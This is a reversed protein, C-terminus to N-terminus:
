RGKGETFPIRPDLFCIFLDVLYNIAVFVTAMLLVYALVVPYDRNGISIMLYNGLGPWSFISEVVISGGLLSGLSIGMLNVIPIFANKLAHSFLITREKLGRTRLLFIYDEDLVEIINSRILRIYRCAMPLALTIIPLVSHAPTKNGVMPLLRLRVSILWALGMGLVFGPTGMVIFTVANLSYETWSDKKVVMFIAIPVATVLMLVFAGATLHLTAPLRYKIEEIVPLGSTYSTGFDLRLLNRAWDLYRAVISQDLGMRQEMMVVDARSPDVGARGLVVEAPNGRIWATLVFTLVSVGFLIAVLGLTKKAAYKWM